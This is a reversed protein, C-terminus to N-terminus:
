EERLWERLAALGQRIRRSVQMQSCGVAKAIANQDLDGRFYLEVVRALHPPLARVAAWLAQRQCEAEPGPRGDVLLDRHLERAEEGALEDLSLPLMESDTMLQAGSSIATYVRNTVHSRDRAHRQVAGLASQFAYTIFKANRTPDYRQASRWVAVRAEQQLDDLAVCNDLTLRHRAYWRAAAALAAQEAQRMERANILLEM